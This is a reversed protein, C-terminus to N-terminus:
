RDELSSTFKKAETFVRFLGASTALLNVALTGPSTLCSFGSRVLGSMLLPRWCRIVLSILVKSLYNKKDKMIHTRILKTAIVSDSIERFVPPQEVGVFFPAM